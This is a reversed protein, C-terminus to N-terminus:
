RIRITRRASEWTWTIKSTAKWTDQAYLDVNLFGFPQSDALPFTTTATSAVGSIFQALDTYDGDAGHGRRLRLREAPLHAHEHRFAARARGASWALNDNFFFRAARRGQVWANDQGGLTTFPASGGVGELM